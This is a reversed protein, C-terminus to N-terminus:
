RWAECLAAFAKAPDPQHFVAGIVAAGHAGLAKIAPLTEKVIGGIAIVPKGDAAKVAEGLLPLGRPSLANAKSSTSAVPGFGLHDVRPDRCAARVQALDHTSRGLLVDLDPSAGDDQGLHLGDCGETLWDARDNIILPIRGPRTAELLRDLLPSPCDDHGKARLQVAIPRYPACDHLFEVPDLGQAAELDWILYIGSRLSM